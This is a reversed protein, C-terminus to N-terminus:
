GLTGSMVTLIVLIIAVAVMVGLIPSIAQSLFARIASGGPVLTALYPAHPHYYVTIPQGPPYHALLERPAESLAGWTLTSSTYTVDEVTYEYELYLRSFPRFLNGPGTHRDLRSTIIEGTTTPWGRSQRARIERRVLWGLYPLFLLFLLYVPGWM